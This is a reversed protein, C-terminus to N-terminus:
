VKRNFLSDRISWSFKHKISTHVWKETETSIRFEQISYKQTIKLRVERTGLCYKIGICQISLFITKLKFESVKSRTYQVPIVAVHTAFYPSRQRMVRPRTCHNKKHYQYPMSSLYNGTTKRCPQMGHYPSTHKQLQLFHAWVHSQYMCIYHLRYFPLNISM